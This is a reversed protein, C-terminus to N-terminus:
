EIDQMLYRNESEDDDPEPTATPTATLIETHTGTVNVTPTENATGIAGAMGATFALVLLIMGAMTINRLRM